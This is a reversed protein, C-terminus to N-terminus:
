IAVTTPGEHPNTMEQGVLEASGQEYLMLPSARAPAPTTETLTTASLVELL